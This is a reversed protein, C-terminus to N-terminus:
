VKQIARGSGLDQMAAVMDMDGWGEAILGNEFRDFGCLTWTAKKGTPPMGFLPGLMTGTAIGRGAVMDNEAVLGHITITLDPFAARFMGVYQKIM